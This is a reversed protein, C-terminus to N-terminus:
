LTNSHVFRVNGAPATIQWQCLANNPYVRREYGPSTITGSSATLEVPESGCSGTRTDAYM